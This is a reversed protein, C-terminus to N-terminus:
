ALGWAKGNFLIQGIERFGFGLSLVFGKIWVAGHGRGIEYLCKAQKVEQILIRQIWSEFGTGGCGVM